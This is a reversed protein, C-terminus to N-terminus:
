HVFKQILYENPPQHKGVGTLNHTESEKAKGKRYRCAVLHLMSKSNTTTRVLDLM